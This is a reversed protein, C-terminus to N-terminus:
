LMMVAENGHMLTCGDDDGGGRVGNFLMSDCQVDDDGDSDCVTSACDFTTRESCMM